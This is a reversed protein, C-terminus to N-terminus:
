EEWRPHEQMMKEIAELEPQVKMRFSIFVRSLYEIDSKMNHFTNVFAFKRQGAEYLSKQLFSVVVVAWLFQGDISIESLPKGSFFARDRETALDYASRFNMLTYGSFLSLIREFNAREKELDDACRETFAVDGHLAIGLGYFVSALLFRDTRIDLGVHGGDHGIRAKEMAIMEAGIFIKDLLHESVTEPLNEGRSSGDATEGKAAYKVWRKEQALTATLLRLFKYMEGLRLSSLEHESLFDALEKRAENEMIEM